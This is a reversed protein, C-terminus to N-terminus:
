TVEGSKEAMTVFLDLVHENLTEALKQAKGVTMGGLLDFGLSTGKLLPITDQYLQVALVPKGDSAQQVVFRCNSRQTTKESMIFDEGSQLKPIIGRIGGPNTRALTM